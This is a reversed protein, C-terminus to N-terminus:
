AEGAPKWPLPEGSARLAAVAAATEVVGAILAIWLGYRTGVGLGRYSPLSLWRIVVLLLGLTVTAAVVVSPGVPLEPLSMGSRRLLQFVGALTLLLTGAWATFGASWGNVSVGFLGASVGWWPLFGAVFAVAAAGVIARDLTSLRKLDFKM